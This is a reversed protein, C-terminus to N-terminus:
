RGRVGAPPMAEEDGLVLLTFAAAARWWACASQLEPGAAPLVVVATATGVRRALQRDIVEPLALNPPYAV